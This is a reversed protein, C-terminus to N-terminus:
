GRARLKAQCIKGGDEGNETAIALLTHGIELLNKRFPKPSPVGIGLGIPEIGQPM